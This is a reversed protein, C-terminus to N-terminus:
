LKLRKCTLYSLVNIDEPALDGLDLLAHVCDSLINVIADAHPLCIFVEHRLVFVENGLGIAVKGGTGGGFPDVVHNGVCDRGVGISLKML